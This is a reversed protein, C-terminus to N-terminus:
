KFCIIILILYTYKFNRLQTCIIQILYSHKLHYLQACFFSKFFYVFSTFIFTSHICNGLRITYFLGLRILMGNFVILRIFHYIIFSIEKDFINKENNNLTKSATIKVTFKTM